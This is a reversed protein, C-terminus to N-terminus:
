LGELLARDSGVTAPAGADAFCAPNLEHRSYRLGWVVTFCEAASSLTEGKENVSPM